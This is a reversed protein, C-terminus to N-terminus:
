FGLGKLYDGFNQTAINAQAPTADNESFKCFVVAKGTKVAVLGDTGHKLIILSDDARTTMHKVGGIKPGAAFLGGPNAFGGIIYKVEDAALNLQAHGAWQVGDLGYLGAKCVIAKTLKELHADWSM